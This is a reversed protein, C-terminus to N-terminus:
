VTLIEKEKLGQNRGMNVTLTEGEVGTIQGLFPLKNIVTDLAKGVSVALDSGRLGNETGPDYFRFENQSLIDGRPGYVWEIVFRYSTGEKAISTRLLSEVRFQRSIKKLVDPDKALRYYPIKSESLIAGANGIKKIQFRSQQSFYKEYIEDIYDNFIGDVNDIPKLWSLSELAYMRDNEPSAHAISVMGFPIIFSLLVIIKSVM